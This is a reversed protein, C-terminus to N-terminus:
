GQPQPTPAPPESPGRGSGVDGAPRMWLLVAVALTWLPVGLLLGAWGIPPILLWLAFVLGVWGLWRPLAGYRLIVFAAAVLMLAASLEAAVFFADDVIVLAQAAQPTLEDEALAGALNPGPVLLTFFGVGLGAGFAIATLFAGHGEFAVLRARLAGVFIVFFLSGLMFLFGAALIADSEDRFWMLIAIPNDDDPLSTSETIVVSVIWLVVAVIGALAALREWGWRM